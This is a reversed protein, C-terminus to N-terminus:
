CHSKQGGPALERAGRAAQPLHNRTLIDCKCCTSYLARTTLAFNSVPLPVPISTYNNLELILSLSSAGRLKKVIKFKNVYLQLPVRADLDSLENFGLCYVLLRVFITPGSPLVGSVCLHHYAVTQLPCALSEFVVCFLPLVNCFAFASLRRDGKAKKCILSSKRFYQM